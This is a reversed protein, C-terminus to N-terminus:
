EDLHRDELAAIRIKMARSVLREGRQDLCPGISFCEGKRLSSLKEIWDSSKERTSMAAIDAFAKLETAAPKFFLKHEANFMRDREDKKMNSMTQTALILSLGFKRGERLYKSLPSGEKHDLNQVEDLVIVKPDTKKGKSQLHGYLDWLIFETILQASYADMGALQFINCLPDENQFLSDWDFSGEGYSFPSDLVFPRLKNYLSQASTKFKRDEAMDEIVSLMQDLNMSSGYSNVGDMIASHLVSYQQDGVNYVSNFLGAIRKAISNANESFVIGGNDTEQPLFPNIPLPKKRVVHQIPKMRERFTDELHDPLFGNTYDIILNNQRFRSMEYLMAQIAYTKGQGSSGFLLMHRNALEPHGFEWYIPRHTKITSGLYVRNHSVVSGDLKLIPSAVKSETLETFENSGVLAENSEILYSDSGKSFEIKATEGNDDQDIFITDETEFEIMDEETFTLQKGQDTLSEWDISYSTDTAIRYVEGGGISYINATISPYSSPKWFGIREVKSDQNIWFAFVSAEWSIEFDGEALRELTELVRPYKSRNVQIKSAILRHLQMWWYRSDPKDDELLKHTESNQSPEFAQTLVRLGNEIQLKAKMIHNESENGMKCEVLHIVLSMRNSALISGQIWLLDPRSQSESLDFWHRYADLSVVFECLFSNKPKLLKRSLSYAMFDRIYEDGVGTARVLSLGSLENAVSLLGESVRECQQKSWAADSSYLSAVAYKLKYKLDTFSFRETSVTYNEEGHTGVGSGFGIVERTKSGETVPEKILRDDISPDICIVWDVKSHLCDVVRRWPTFDGCGVVISGSTVSDSKISHLITSHYSGLRFQRNSVVRRRKYMEAPADITCCAKELIPFKLDRGTVDFKGVREFKSISNGTGIFDYLVAIDAELQEKILRHYAGMNNKTVIKHSVSFRCNAYHKYRTEIDAAEWTESWQQIWTVIDSEGDSDTFLQLSFSYMDTPDDTLVYRNTNTANVKPKTSLVKLFSNIAAIIPQIDKNRFIALSFGDRAHPHLDFYDFMLRSLLKSESSEKFLESDSIDDESSSDSDYNLLMRTSLSSDLQNATGIRHVLSEGRTNTDLNNEQNCLLGSLPSQIRTLDVYNEWIHLRFLTNSNCKKLEKNCVYNFCRTLYVTQAQLMEIVAPHLVTVIASGEYSESYWTDDLENPRRSIVLFMRVLMGVLSSYGIESLSFATEFADAYARRLDSWVTQSSFLISFIGETCSSDIFNEYKEALTKYKETLPDEQKVWDGSFLNTSNKSASCEDRIASLLVRRVEDSSSSQILEEYYPLHFVPLKYADEKIKLSRKALLLLDSSLRYINHEPLRWGFKYKRKGCDADITVSYELVPEASSNYRCSIEPNLLNWSIIIETNDSHVLDMHKELLSDVGGILRRLYKYSQEYNEEADDGTEIDHKFLSSSICIKRILSAKHNKHFEHLAIWVSTLFVEIPDGSLKRTSDKKRVKPTSLGLVNDLIVVFDCQLLKEKEKQNDSEIYIRIGSIYEEKTPYPNHVGEEDFPIKTSEELKMMERITDLTKLTKDRKTSDIFMSYNYFEVAKTIYHELHKSKRKISYRSLLPLAFEQLSTLMVVRVDNISTCLDISLNKLWKDIKLLDGQGTNLIPMLIRDFSAIEESSVDLFGSSELKEIIWDGFSMKMDIQWIVEPTCTHFDDLSASDLVRDVGCLVIVHLMSDDPSPMSRFSTLTGQTAIWDNRQAEQRGVVSWDKLLGTAIKLTLLIDTYKNCLVDIDRAVALITDEPMGPITFIMKKASLSEKEKQDFQVQIHRCVTKSFFSM